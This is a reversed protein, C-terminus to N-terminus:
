WVLASLAAWDATFPDPLGPEGREHLVEWIRYLLRAPHRLDEHRVVMVRWGAADFDERRAIDQGWQRLDAAHQRGDYEIAVKSRVYRLDPTGIFRGDPAMVTINVEPESFGGAVLLLRVCTERPSDVRERVLGAARRSLAAAPRHSM